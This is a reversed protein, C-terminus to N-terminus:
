FPLGSDETESVPDPKSAGTDGGEKKDVFDFLFANVGVSRKTDGNSDTWQNEVLKGDVYINDGKQIKRSKNVLHDGFFTITFWYSQKVWEDGKKYDDQVAISVRSIKDSVVEVDKGARGVLQVKNLKLM